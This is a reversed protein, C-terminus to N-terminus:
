SKQGGDQWMVVVFDEELDVARSSDVIAKLATEVITIASAERGLELLTSKEAPTASQDAELKQLLSASDVEKFPVWKLLYVAVM